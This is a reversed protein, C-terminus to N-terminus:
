MLWGIREEAYILKFQTEKLLLWFPGLITAMM